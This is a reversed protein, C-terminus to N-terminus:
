RRRYKISMERLTEERDMREQELREIRTKEAEKDARLQKNLAAQMRRKLREQPTLKAGSSTSAEEGLTSLAQFKLNPSSCWLVAPLPLSSGTVLVQTFNNERSNLHINLYQVSNKRM